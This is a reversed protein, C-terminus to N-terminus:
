MLPPALLNTVILLLTTLLPPPPYLSLSVVAFLPLYRVSLNTSNSEIDVQSLATPNESVMMNETTILSHKRLNPLTYLMDGLVGCLTHMHDLFSYKNPM